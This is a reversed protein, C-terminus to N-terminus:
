EALAQEKSFRDPLLFQNEENPASGGPDATEGAEFGLAEFGFHFRTRVHEGVGENGSAAARSARRDSNGL